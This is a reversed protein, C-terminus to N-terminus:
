PPLLSNTDGDLSARQALEARRVNGATEMLGESYPHNRLTGSILDEKGRDVLELMKKRTMPYIKGKRLGKRYSAFKASVNISGFVVKVYDPIGLNQFIALKDGNRSLLRGTALNGTRKRVNRRIMRFFQELSNNTRPITGEKNQAFLHGEWKEYASMIQKATDMEHTLGSKVIERLQGIFINCKEHSIKDDCTNGSPKGKESLCKM